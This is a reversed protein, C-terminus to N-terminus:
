RPSDSRCSESGFDPLYDVADRAEGQENCQKTGVTRCLVACSWVEDWRLM